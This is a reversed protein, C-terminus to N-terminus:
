ERVSPLALSGLLCFWLPRPSGSIRGCFCRWLRTQATHPQPGATGASPRPKSGSGGEGFLPALEEWRLSLRVGLGPCSSHSSCLQQRYTWGLRPNAERVVAGPVTSTSFNRSILVSARWTGGNQQCSSPCRPRPHPAVSSHVSGEGPQTKVRPLTRRPGRGCVTCTPSSPALDAPAEGGRQRLVPSGGRGLCSVTPVAFGRHDLLSRTFSCTILPVEKRKAKLGGVFEMAVRPCPEGATVEQSSSAERYHQM